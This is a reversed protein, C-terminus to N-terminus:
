RGANADGGCGNGSANWGFRVGKFLLAAVGGLLVFSSTLILCSAIVQQDRAYHMQNLLRQAFNTFGAPLLIMTASVETVSFMVILLFSGTLLRWTCPLHVYLWTKFRSVGDLAAMESLHRQHSGCTLLLIILAVGSFRCAHGISVIFWEQRLGATLESGGFMKVISVAILSAPLFMALFITANVIVSVRRGRVALAGYAIIHSLIAACAAIKFSVGLGDFHLAMFRGFPKLDRVHTILLLVPAVLSFIILAIFVPWHRKQSAFEVGSTKIEPSVWKRSAMSLIVAAIVATISVPWAARALVGESGSLDYLVGLETGITNVVALHFTTFESMSLVFCVGFALLMPRALLPLTVNTFRGWVGVELRASDWVDSDINKWGQAILLAAVPWYWMVLVASSTFSFVFRAVSIDNGLFRGLQTTPDLLLSWAYYLMYRPLVLTLLLLLFIIGKAKPTSTALLRGPIYGLVVASLGIISALGFTKFTLLLMRSSDIYETDVPKVPKVSCVFLVVLPALILGAWVFLAGGSLFINSGPRHLDHTDSSSFFRETM